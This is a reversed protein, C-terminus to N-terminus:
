LSLAASLSKTLMNEMKKPMIRPGKNEDPNRLPSKSAIQMSKRRSLSARRNPSANRKSTEEVIPDLTSTQFKVSKQGPDM